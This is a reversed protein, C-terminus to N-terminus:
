SLMSKLLSFYIIRLYFFLVKRKNVEHLKQVADPAKIDLHIRGSLVVLCIQGSLHKYKDSALRHILKKFRSQENGSRVVWLKM